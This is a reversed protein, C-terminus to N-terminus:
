RRLPPFAMQLFLMGVSYMDFRDPSYLRWLIPSLTAALPLPPARPTQVDPCVSRQPTCCYSPPWRCMICSIVVCCSLGQAVPECSHSPFAEAPTPGLSSLALSLATAGQEPGAMAMGVTAPETLKGATCCIHLEHAHEVLPESVTSHRLHHFAPCQPWDTPKRMARCCSGAQSSISGFYTHRSLSVWTSKMDQPSLRLTVAPAQCPVVPRSRPLCWTLRHRSVSTSMIYQQPPAYRPDLLFENPIYNIGVRLDAAAGLDILKARGDKSSIIVNQPKIDRHVIGTAHCAKLAELLQLSPPSLPKASSPLLQCPAPPWCYCPEGARANCAELMQMIHPSQSTCTLLTASSSLPRAPLAFPVACTGLLPLCSVQVSVALM